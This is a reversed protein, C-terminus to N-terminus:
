TTKITGFIALEIMPPVLILAIRSLPNHLSHPLHECARKQDGQNAAALMIPFDLRMGLFLHLPKVLLGLFLTCHIRVSSTWLVFLFKM